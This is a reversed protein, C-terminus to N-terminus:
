KMLVTCFLYYIKLQQGKQLLLHVFLCNKELLVTFSFSSFHSVATTVLFSCSCSKDFIQLNYLATGYFNNQVTRHFFCAIKSRNKEFM